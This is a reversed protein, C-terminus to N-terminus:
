KSQSFFYGILIYLRYTTAYRCPTTPEPHLEPDHRCLGYRHCSQRVCHHLTFQVGYDALSGCSETNVGDPWHIPQSIRPIFNSSRLIDLYMHIYNVVQVPSFHVTLIRGSGMNCKTYGNRSNRKECHGERERRQSKPELSSPRSSVVAPLTARARQQCPCCLFSEVTVINIVLTGCPWCLKMLKPSTM